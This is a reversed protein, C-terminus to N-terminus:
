LIYSNQMITYFWFVNTGINDMCSQTIDVM